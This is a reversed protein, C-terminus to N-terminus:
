NLYIGAAALSERAEATNPTVFEANAVGHKLVAAMNVTATNVEELLIGSAMATGDFAVLKSNEDLSLVTGAAIIGINIKLTSNLIIPPHSATVIPNAYTKETIKGFEM